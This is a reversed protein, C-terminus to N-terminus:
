EEVVSMKLKIIQNHQCSLIHFRIGHFIFIQDSAPITRAEHIVLGAITTAYDDPLRWGMARNLDRITINGDVYLYGDESFMLDDEQEDHEDDIQGVIEELIDELTILGMLVGYEDVVLAFLKKHIRFRHLQKSLSTTKPIFWPEMTLVEFDLHDSVNSQRALASLLDKAHLVGVINEKHDRWFPIRTYSSKLVQNIIEEKPLDANIMVMNKRHTMVEDVHVDHLDLIGGLMDRAGKTVAQEHHHLDITGRIEAHASLTNDENRSQLKLWQMLQGTIKRTLFTFPTFILICIRLIGGVHLSIKESFLVACTKPLVEAFVVILCTMLLTAWVVGSEGLLNLFLQTALVSALINVINNGILITSLVREKENLCARVQKARLNGEQELQYIRIRSVATLATESGSFFASILLLILIILFTMFIFM